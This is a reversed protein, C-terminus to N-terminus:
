RRSLSLPNEFEDRLVARRLFRRLAGTTGPLVPSEKALLDARYPWLRLTAGEWDIM